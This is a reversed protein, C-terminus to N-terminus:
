CHPKINWALLAGLIASTGSPFMRAFKRGTIRKLEEEVLKCYKGNAVQGSSHIEDYADHLEEQLEKYARNPNTFKIM